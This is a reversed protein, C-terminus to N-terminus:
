KTISAMSSGYVSYALWTPDGGGDDISKRAKAVAAGLSNTKIETYLTEAFKAAGVDRVEWLSGIFAGAGADLFADAWGGLQTYSQTKGDTRCANMFVFPRDFKNRWNRLTSPELPGGELNIRATTQEFSNHCAFHLIGFDGSDLVETLKRLSGVTVSNGGVIKELKEVELKAQPPASPPVIFCVRGNRLDQTAVKGFRWRTLDFAEGLFGVSKDPAKNPETPYLLEWPVPDNASLIGIRKINAREDWLIKQLSEPIFELWLDVGKGRLNTRMESPEIKTTGNALQNMQGILANIVVDPTRTLPKLDLDETHLNNSIFNCKYLNNRSDFRIELKVEDSNSREFQTAAIRSKSPGTPVGEAVSAEIKLEGLAASGYYATVSLESPGVKNPILKWIAFSSNGKAPVTITRARKDEVITFDPAHLLFLVDASQGDPLVGPNIPSAKTDAALDTAIRVELYCEEGSKISEPFRGEIYREPPGSSGDSVPPTPPPPGDAEVVADVDPFAEGSRTVPLESRSPAGSGVYQAPRAMEIWDPTAIDGLGAEASETEGPFEEGEDINFGGDDTRALATEDESLKANPGVAAQGLNEYYDRGEFISTSIPTISGVARMYKSASPNIRQIIGTLAAPMIENSKWVSGIVRHLDGSHVEIAGLKRFVGGVEGARPSNLGVVIKNGPWEMEYDAFWAPLRGFRSAFDRRGPPLTRFRVPLTPRGPRSLNFKLLEHERQTPLRRPTSILEDIEQQQRENAFIFARDRLPARSRFGALLKELANTNAFVGLVIRDKRRSAVFVEM